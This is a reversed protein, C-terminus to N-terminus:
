THLLTADHVPVELWFIYQACVAVIVGTHQDQSPRERKRSGPSVIRSAHPVTDVDSGLHETTLAIRAGNIHPADANNQTSSPAARQHWTARLRPACFTASLDTKDGASSTRKAPRAGGVRGDSSPRPLARRRSLGHGVRPERHQGSVPLACAILLKQFRISALRGEGTYIYIYMHLFVFLFM